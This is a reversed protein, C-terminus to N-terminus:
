KVHKLDEADKETISMIDIFMDGFNSIEYYEYLSTELNTAANNMFTYMFLGTIVVVLISIYQGKSHWIMRLLRLDLKKM